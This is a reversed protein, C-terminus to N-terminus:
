LIILDVGEIFVMAAGLGSSHYLNESFVAVALIKDKFFVM